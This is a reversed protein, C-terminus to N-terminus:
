GATFFIYMLGCTNWRKYWISYTGVSCQTSIFLPPQVINGSSQIESFMCIINIRITRVQVNNPWEYHGTSSGSKGSGLLTTCVNSPVSVAKLKHNYSDAIYLTKDQDCWAVGLPHQLKADSHKGDRDGFCFLNQFNFMCM